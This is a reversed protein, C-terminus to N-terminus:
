NRAKRRRGIFSDGERWGAPLRQSQHLDDEDKNKAKGNNKRKIKERGGHLEDLDDWEDSTYDNMRIKGM